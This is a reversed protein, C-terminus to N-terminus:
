KKTEVAKASKSAELRSEHLETVLDELLAAIKELAARTGRQEVLQAHVFTEHNNIPNPINAASYSLKKPKADEVNSVNQAPTNPAIPAEVVAQAKESM